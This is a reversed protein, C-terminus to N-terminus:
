CGIARTSGPRGSQRGSARVEPMRRSASIARGSASHPYEELLSGEGYSEGPRLVHLVEPRGTLGKVIEIRGSILIGFARRPQSERFVYSGSPYTKREALEALYRLDSPELMRLLANRAIAAPDSEPRTM